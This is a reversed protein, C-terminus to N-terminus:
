GKEGRMMLVVVSIMTAALAESGWFMLVKIPIITAMWLFFLGAFSIGLWYIGGIKIGKRWKNHSIENSWMVSFFVSFVLGHILSIVLNVILAYRDWNETNWITSPEYYLNTQDAFIYKVVFFIVSVTMFNQFPIL